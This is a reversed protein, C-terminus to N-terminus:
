FEEVAKLINQMASDSLEKNLAKAVEVSDRNFDAVTKAWLNLNVDVIERYAPSLEDYTLGNAFAVIDAWPERGTSVCDACYALSIPGLGSCCVFVEAVKGCCQCERVEAFM